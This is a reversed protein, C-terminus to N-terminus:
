ILLIISVLIEIVMFLSISDPNKHILQSCRRSESQQIGQAQLIVLGAWMNQTRMLLCLECAHWNVWFVFM